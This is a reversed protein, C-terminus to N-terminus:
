EPRQCKACATKKTPVMRPWKKRQKYEEEEKEEWNNSSKARRGPSLQFSDGGESNRTKDKWPM